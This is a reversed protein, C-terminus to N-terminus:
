PSKDSKGDLLVEWESHYKEKMLRILKSHIYFGLFAFIGGFVYLKIAMTYGVIVLSIVLILDYAIFRMYYDKLEM